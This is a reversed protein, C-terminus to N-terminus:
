GAPTGGSIEFTQILATATADAMVATVTRQEKPGTPGSPRVEVTLIYKRGHVSQVYHGEIHSQITFYSGVYWQGIQPRGTHKAGGEDTVVAAADFKVQFAPSNKATDRTLVADLNAPAGVTVKPKSEMTASEVPKSM